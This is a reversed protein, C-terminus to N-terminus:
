LSHFKGNETKYCSPARARGAAGACYFSMFSTGNESSDLLEAWGRHMRGQVCVIRPAVNKCGPEFNWHTFYLFSETASVHPKRHIDFLVMVNPEVWIMLMHNLNGYDCGTVSRNM